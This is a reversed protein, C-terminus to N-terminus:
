RTFLLSILQSFEEPRVLSGIKEEKERANRICIVTASAITINIYMRRAGCTFITNLLMAYVGYAVFGESAREDSFNYGNRFVRTTIDRWSPPRVVCDYLFSIFPITPLKNTAMIGNEVMYSSKWQIMALATTVPGRM